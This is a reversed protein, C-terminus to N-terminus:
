PEIDEKPTLVPMRTRMKQNEAGTRGPAARRWASLGPRRRPWLVASFSRKRKSAALVAGCNGHGEHPQSPHRKRSSFPMQSRHSRLVAITSGSNTRSLLGLPGLVFGAILRPMRRFDEALSRGQCGTLFAGRRMVHLHFLASVAAFVSVALTARLPAAAGAARHALWDLLQALLPVGLVVAANGLLRSRFGLARQQLGAYFGATVSVYAVEVLVIALGGRLGARAM